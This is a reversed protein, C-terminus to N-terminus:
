LTPAPSRLRQEIFAAPVQGQVRATMCLSTLVMRTQTGTPSRSGGSIKRAIVLSRLAQEATNNTPPITPDRVFTFLEPLFTRCRQALTAEPRDAPMTQPCLAWLQREYQKARQARARAAEPTMGAEAAPREGTAQRYIEGIGAIWAALEGDHPHQRELEWLERWLHAWCRQHPGPFHNYAAYFDTVLTGAYAPGLVADPVTMARSGEQHVYYRVTPTAFLWLYGNQGDERWHTEDAHTMASTRVTAGLYQYVPDLRVAVQRLLGILGGHSLTLGHADALRQVILRGPLREVTAMHAVQALLRPGFRCRGLRGAELGPPRARVRRRCGPCRYALLEHDIVEVPRPEPLEIVQVRRDVWGGTLREGCQPCAALEHRVRTTAQMRRRGHNHQAARQRRVRKPDKKASPKVEPAWSSRHTDQEQWRATAARLTAVEQRVVAHQALVAEMQASLERLQSRLAANTAELQAIRENQQAVVERFRALETNLPQQKAREKTLLMRLTSADLRDLRLRDEDM